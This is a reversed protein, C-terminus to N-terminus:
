PLNHALGGGQLLEGVMLLGQCRSDGEPLTLKVQLEGKTRTRHNGGHVPQLARGPTMARCTVALDEKFLGESAFHLDFQQLANLHSIVFAELLDCACKEGSTLMQVMKLRNRQAPM